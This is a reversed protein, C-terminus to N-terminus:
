RTAVVIERKIEEKVSESDSEFENESESEVEPEGVEQRRVQNAYIQRNRFERRDYNSKLADRLEEELRSWDGSHPDWESDSPMQWHTCMKGETDQM